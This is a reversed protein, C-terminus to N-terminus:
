YDDRDLSIRRLREEVIKEKSVNATYNEEFWIPSSYLINRQHYTENQAITDPSFILHEDRRIEMKINKKLEMIIEELKGKLNFFKYIGYTIGLNAIIGTILYIDKM